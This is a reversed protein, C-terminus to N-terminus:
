KGEKLKERYVEDSLDAVAELLVSWSKATNRATHYADSCVADANLDIGKLCSGDTWMPENLREGIHKLVASLLLEKKTWEPMPLPKKNKKKAM